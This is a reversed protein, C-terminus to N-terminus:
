GAAKKRERYRRQKEAPTLANGNSRKTVANSNGNGHNTVSVLARLAATEAELATVRDALAKLTAATIDPATNKEPAARQVSAGPLPNGSLDFRLAM